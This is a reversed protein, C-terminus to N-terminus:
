RATEGLEVHRRRFQAYQYQALLVAYAIMVVAFPVSVLVSLDNFYSNALQALAVLVPVSALVVTRPSSHVVDLLTLDEKVAM